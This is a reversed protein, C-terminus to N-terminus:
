EVINKFKKVTAADTDTHTYTVTVTVTVTTALQQIWYKEMMNKITKIYDRDTITFLPRSSVTYAM